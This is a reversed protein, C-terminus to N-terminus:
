RREIKIAVRLKASRSRNNSIIEDKSPVIIKSSLPNLPSILNGYIDKEPTGEFNGYKFFRKVLRDEISHYSIVVFRGNINLVKISEM